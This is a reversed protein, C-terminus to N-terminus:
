LSSDRIFRNGESNRGDYKKRVVGLFAGKTTKKRIAAANNSTAVTTNSNKDESTRVWDSSGVAGQNQNQNNIWEENEQNEFVTKRNPNYLSTPRRIAAFAGRQAAEQLEESTVESTDLRELKPLRYLTYLRYLKCAKLDPRSINLLGPCAPNRMMSLYKLNPFSEIVHDLFTPLDKVNNNNFWLTTVSEMVPCECLDMLGNNDLILTKLYRFYELNGLSTIGTETLNLSYVFCGERAALAEPIESIRRFALMLEGGAQPRMNIIENYEAEEETSVFTKKKRSMSYSLVKVEEV